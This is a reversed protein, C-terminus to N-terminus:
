VATTTRFHTHKNVSTSYLTFPYHCCIGTRTQPSRIHIRIPRNTNPNWTLLRNTRTSPIQKTVVTASSTLANFTPLNIFNIKSIDQFIIWESSYTRRHNQLFKDSQGRKCYDAVAFLEYSKSECFHSHIGISAESFVRACWGCLCVVVFGM